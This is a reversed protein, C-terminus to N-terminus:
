MELAAQARRILEELETRTWMVCAVTSGNDRLRSVEFVDGVAEVIVNPMKSPPDVLRLRPVGDVSAADDYDDFTELDLVAAEIEPRLPSGASVHGMTTQGPVSSEHSPLSLGRSPPKPKRAM